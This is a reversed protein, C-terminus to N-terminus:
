SLLSRVVENVVKGDAQGKLRPMLVKMVNGMEKTSTADAEAIAEKALSEIQGRDMQAPLYANIIELETKEQTTDRGAKDLDTISEERRKAEKKLIAIVDDDTLDKRQDVEAQKFAASILRLTDRREVDKAKMAEKLDNQIQEKLTSSM